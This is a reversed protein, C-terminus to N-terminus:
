KKAGGTFIERAVLYVISDLAKMRDGEDLSMIKSWENYDRPLKTKIVWELLKERDFKQYRGTVEDEEYFTNSITPDADSTRFVSETMLKGIEYPSSPMNSVGTINKINEKHTRIKFGDDTIEMSYDGIDVSEIGRRIENTFKKQILKTIKEINTTGGEGHYVKLKFNKGSKTILSM